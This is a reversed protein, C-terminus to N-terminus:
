KGADCFIDDFLSKLNLAGATSLHDDDMYLSQGHDMVTLRGDHLMREYPRIRLILENEGLADLVGIIFDQRKSFDPCPVTTDPAAGALTQKALMDPVNRGVEPVPYILVVRKGAFLLHGVTERIRAAYYRELEDVSSFSQGYFSVPMSTQGFENQGKCYLSWRAHLIVTHITPDTALLDLVAQSYALRQRPDKDSNKVVGVVPPLANMGFKRFAQGHAIASAELGPIMAVGHSDCWLAYGPTVGPTGFVPTKAPKSENVDSKAWHTGKDKFALWHRVAPSFRGPFGAGRETWLGAGILCASAVGWCVFVRRRSGFQPSRFPNEVYRWSLYGGLLSAVLVAAQIATSNGPLRYNILAILPWHLLYVSYSIMGLLVVPKLSLLRGAWADQRAGTWILLAAGVCPLLAAPGPFPTHADFWVMSGVVLALGAIGLVQSLRRGAAPLGGLAVLIGLLLEWARYPLLFFARMPQTPVVWASAALSVIFLVVLPAVRMRRNGILRYLVWLLLPFVLYFQEEVGLSWTHLLVAQEATQHFYNETERLFLINPMAGVVYRVSKAMVALDTPLLVFLAGIMTLGTVAFLAPAIRRIRREYFRALSFRGQALDRDIISSILYGSIVFFVDVGVFGGPLFRGYLHYVLVGLIALARLGDVDPRYTPSPNASMRNNNGTM